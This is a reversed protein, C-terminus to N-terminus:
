MCKLHAKPAKQKKNQLVLTLIAVYNWIKWRYVDYYIELQKPGLHIAWTFCLTSHSTTQILLEGSLQLCCLGSYLLLSFIKSDTVRPEPFNCYKYEKISSVILWVFLYKTIFTIMLQLGLLHMYLQKVLKYQTGVTPWLKTGEGERTDWDSRGVKSRNGLIYQGAEVCLSMQSSQCQLSSVQKMSNCLLFLNLHYPLLQAQKLIVSNPRPM